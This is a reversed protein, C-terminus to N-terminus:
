LEAWQDWAGTSKLRVPGGLRTALVFDETLRESFCLSARKAALDELRDECYVARRATSIPPSPPVQLALNSDVVYGRQAIHKTGSRVPEAAHRVRPDCAGRADLNEFLVVRGCKPEVRLGHEFVTAGGDASSLYVLATVARQAVSQVDTVCDLHTGYGGHPVEYKAVHTAM